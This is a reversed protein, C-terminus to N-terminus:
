AHMSIKYHKFPIFLKKYLEMLLIAGNSLWSSSVVIGLGYFWALAKEM